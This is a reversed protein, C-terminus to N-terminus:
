FVKKGAKGHKVDDYLLKLKDKHLETRAHKRLNDIVANHMHTGCLKCYFTYTGNRHCRADTWHKYEDEIRDLVRNREHKEGNINAKHKGTNVHKKLCYDGNTEIKIDCDCPNCHLFNVTKTKLKGEDFLTQLRQKDKISPHDRCNFFPYEVNINSHYCQALFIKSASIRQFYSSESLLVLSSFNLM